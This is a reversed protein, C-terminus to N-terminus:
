RSLYDEYEKQVFADNIRRIAAVQISDKCDTKVVRRDEISFCAYCSDTIFGTGTFYYYYAFSKTAPNMTNKGFPYADSELNLQHLLTPVIDLQSCIREIKKGKMEPKLVDGYFILPIRHFDKNDFDYDRHNEHSHDSVIVFLTNSFWPQKKAETFYDQLAKDTYIMTNVYANQRHDIIPKIPEPIDYPSHSSLTFWCAMFPSQLQNLEQLFIKQMSRDHIGLKGEDFPGDFNDREKVVDFEMNFLYSKINGYNLQGGFYFASQYGLKKLDKNICPLHISKTTQNIVATHPACPYSSLLAPIGQDSVYGAAYCNTFALGNRALSDLFMCYQEGGFAPISYATFSELIIFIINPKSSPRLVMETSDYPIYYMEKLISQAEADSMVLYPNIKQHSSYELINHGLSWVPNVAADNLMRHKSYYSESESIPIAKFGGRMIVVNAGLLFALMLTGTLLRQWLPYQTLKTKRLAFWKHYLINYLIGFLIVLGFFLLTIKLSATQFVEKPHALHLIAQVNLKAKWELYLCLEGFAILCYLVILISVYWDNLIAVARARTIFYLVTLLISFASFYAATSLDLLYGAILSELIVWAGAQDLRSVISLLFASRSVTFVILWFAFFLLLYRLVGKM